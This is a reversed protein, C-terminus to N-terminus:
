PEGAANTPTERGPSLQVNDLTSTLTFYRGTVGAVTAERGILSSVFPVTLKFDYSITIRVRPSRSRAYPAGNENLPALEVNTASQAFAYRAAYTAPVAVGVQTLAEAVTTAESTINESVPSLSELIMLASRKVNADGTGLPLWDIAPDTPLSTMASRAAAAAARDLTIRANALLAYQVLIGIVTMLIPLSLLFTVAVTGKDGRHLLHVYKRLLNKM